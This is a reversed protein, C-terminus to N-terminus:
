AAVGTSYALAEGHRVAVDTGMLGVIRVGGALSLTSSDVILEIGSGWTGIIVQSWDGFFAANTGVNESIEYPFGILTKTVTDLVPYSKTTGDNYTAALKAWTAASIGWKQGNAAAGDALIDGPFALIEAYTPTGGTVTPNNIGSASTIPTPAGAGGTAFVGAEVKTAISKMIDDRVMMEASPTSQMRMLYSVDSAAGVTHISLTVSGLTPALRTIDVAEAVWYGSGSATMKPISVNGILGSIVRVGLAPLISYPRLVDIFEGALLNTAVSATSTSELLATARTGLVAWPVIFQGKDLSGGMKRCEQTVEQEFGIDENAGLMRRCVRALSFRRAAQAPTKPDAMVSPPTVISPVDPKRAKLTEIEKRHNDADSEQKEVIMADLEARGKGDAVLAEVKAAEIGYKAARAFLKAMEKPDMERKEKASRAATQKQDARNVGVTPDAPVPEFSAEYPTWRMARIVPIGDKDGELRYSNPDVQYGVSVNRRIGAAADKSIDQARQGHGFRVTGGLKRDALEVAMLGIQDGYHRDLIVLGEKARILDVSGPSHDLIEFARQWQENFRVYTLIPEESSISMRVQAPADWEAARVDLVCDRVMLDPRETKEPTKQKTRTKM